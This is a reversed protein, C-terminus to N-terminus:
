EYKINIGGSVASTSNFLGDYQAELSILAVFLKLCVIISHVEKRFM